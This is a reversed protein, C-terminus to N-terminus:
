KKKHRWEWPPTPTPDSWLGMRAQRAQEQLRYLSKDTVYRDYVWAMGARVQETNADKGQCEIRAVTRGYRDKKQPQITAQQMYCLDSLAKKSVQGFPQAKEPADIESLRVNIQDYHGPDGCRAKITDGDTIAVVLCLM